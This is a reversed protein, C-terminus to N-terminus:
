RAAGAPRQDDHHRRFRRRRSCRCPSEAVRASPLSRIGRAQWWRSPWIRFSDEIRRDVRGAVQFRRGRSEGITIRSAQRLLSGAGRALRAGDDEVCAAALFVVLQVDGARDVQAKGVDGERRQPLLNRVARRPDEDVAVVVEAAGLTGKWRLQWGGREVERRKDREIRVSVAVDPLEPRLDVELM